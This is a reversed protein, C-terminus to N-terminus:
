NPLPYHQYLCDQCKGYAHCLCTCISLNLLCPFNAKATESLTRYNYQTSYAFDQILSSNSTAPTKRFQKHLHLHEVPQRPILYMYEQNIISPSSISVNFIFSGVCSLTGFDTMYKRKFCLENNGSWIHKPPKIEKCM